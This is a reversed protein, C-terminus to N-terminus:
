AKVTLRPAELHSQNSRADQRPSDAAIGQQQSPAEIGDLKEQLKRAARAGAQQLPRDMYLSGTESRAFRLAHRLLALEDATLFIRM